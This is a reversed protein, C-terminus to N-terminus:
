LKAGDTVHPFRHPQGPVSFMICSLLFKLGTNQYCDNKEILFGTSKKDRRSLQPITPHYNIITTRYCNKHKMGAPQLCAQFNTYMKEQYDKRGPMTKNSFFLM